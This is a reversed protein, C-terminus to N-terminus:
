VENLCYEPCSNHFFTACHLIKSHCTILLFIFLSETSSTSFWLVKVTRSSYEPSSLCLQGWQIVPFYCYLGLFNTTPWDAPRLFFQITSVFNLFQYCVKKLFVFHKVLCHKAIRFKVHLVWSAYKHSVLHYKTM